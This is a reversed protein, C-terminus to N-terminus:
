GFHAVTYRHSSEKAVIMLEVNALMVALYTGATYKLEDLPTISFETNSFRDAFKVAPATATFFLSPLKNIAFEDNILVREEFLPPATYASRPSSSSSTKM